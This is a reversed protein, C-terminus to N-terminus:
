EWKSQHTKTHVYSGVTQIPKKYRISVIVITLSDTIPLVGNGNRTLLFYLHFFRQEVEGFLCKFVNLYELRNGTSQLLM